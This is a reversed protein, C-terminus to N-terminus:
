RLRSIVVLEIMPAAGNESSVDIADTRRSNFLNFEVTRVTAAMVLTFGCGSKEPFAERALERYSSPVAFAIKTLQRHRYRYM